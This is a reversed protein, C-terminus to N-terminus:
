QCFYPYILLLALVLREKHCLVCLWSKETPRQCNKASEKGAGLACTVETQFFALHPGVVLASEGM